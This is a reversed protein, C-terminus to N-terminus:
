GRRARRRFPRPGTSRGPCYKLALWEPVPSVNLRDAAQAHPGTVRIVARNADSSLLRVKALSKRNFEGSFPEGSKELSGDFQHGDNGTCSTVTVEVIQM